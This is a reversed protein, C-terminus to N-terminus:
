SLQARKLISSLNVPKWKLKLEGSIRDTLRKVGEVMPMDGASARPKTHRFGSSLIIDTDGDSVVTVYSRYKRIMEDVVREKSHMVSIRELGGFEANQIAIDQEDLALLFEALPVLPDVWLPNALMKTHLSELIDFILFQFCIM